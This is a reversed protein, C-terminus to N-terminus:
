RGRFKSTFDLYAEAIAIGLSGRTAAAAVSLGATASGTLAEVAAPDGAMGAAQGREEEGLHPLAEAVVPHARQEEEEHHGGRGLAPQPHVGFRAAAM